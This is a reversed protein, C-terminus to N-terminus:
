GGALCVVMIVVIILLGTFPDGSESTMTAVVGVPLAMALSFATSLTFGGRWGSLVLYLSLAALMLIGFRAYSVLM